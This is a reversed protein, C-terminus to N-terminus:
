AEALGGFRVYDTLDMRGPAHAWPVDGLESPLAMGDFCRQFVAEIDRIASLQDNPDDGAAVRDIHEADVTRVPAAESAGNIVKTVELANEIECQVRQVKGEMADLWNHLMPDHPGTEGDDQSDVVEGDVLLECTSPHTRRIVGHEGIYEIVPHRTERCAHTLLVLVPCDTETEVRFACTDYNEIERARYLEAEIATPRNSADADPGTLYLALNIQHALANNAPSDLVWRGDITVRAAWNNRHYYSDPRPWTAQLRVQQVKGIRGELIRQKAWQVSPAYTDQYGVCVVKGAQDRLRIMELADEVTATIPKECFVHSGAELAARTYPLHSDISTPVIVGDLGLALLEDPSQVIRIAEDALEPMQRAKEPRSTSVAALRARDAPISKTVHKILAAAYGGAGISGITLPQTM